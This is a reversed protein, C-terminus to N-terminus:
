TSNTKTDRLPFIFMDPYKLLFCASIPFYSFRLFFLQKYRFQKQFVFTTNTPPSPSPPSQNILGDTLCVDANRAPQEDWSFASSSGPPRAVCMVDPPLSLLLRPSAALTVPDHSPALRHSEWEEGCLFNEMAKSHGCM